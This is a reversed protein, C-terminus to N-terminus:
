GLLRNMSDALKQDDGPLVHAYVELTIKVNAHGLRQSVAKVSQGQSLLQTAHTHRLDHFRIAPLAARKLLPKFVQCALNSRSIYQGTRTCFITAIINGEALMSARHDKLADLVIRPLTITRRSKASKPEKMLFGGKVEALSRHVALAGAEFNIDQWKLGLLEGQRMGTGVALAFLAHLRTKKSVALLRQIQDGTLVAMEKHDPRAKPIDAAPSYPLLKTKVAHKLAATLLQGCAQRSRGSLENKELMAYFQEVHQSRLRALQVGGLHVNVHLRALQEYRQYTTARVRPRAVHELWHSVFEAVTWRSSETLAGADASSQLKRLEKAVEAKSTGYVVRRKRKLKGDGDVGFGLSVSGVWRGDSARKYIGGESRGRRKRQQTGTM